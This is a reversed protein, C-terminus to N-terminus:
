SRVGPFALQRSVVQKHQVIQLDYASVHGACPAHIITAVEAADHKKCGRM